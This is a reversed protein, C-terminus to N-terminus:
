GIQEISVSWQEGRMASQAQTATRAPHALFSSAATSLVLAIAEDVAAVDVVAAGPGSLRASTAPLHFMFATGILPSGVDVGYTRVAVALVDPQVIVNGPRAGIGNFCTLTSPSLM